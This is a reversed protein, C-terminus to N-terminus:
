IHEIENGRKKQESSIMRSSIMEDDREKDEGDIFGTHKWSRHATLHTTHPSGDDRKKERRRKSVEGTREESSYVLRRLGISSNVIKEKRREGGELIQHRSRNNKIKRYVFRVM